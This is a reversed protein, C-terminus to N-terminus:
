LGFAKEIAAYCQDSRKFHLAQMGAARAAEINPLSDDMFFVESANFRYRDIVRAFLDPDPKILKEQASIVIGDFWDFYDRTRLYRYNVDGMNSLVYMPIGAAKVRQMIEISRPIDTLSERVVEFCRQVQESTLDTEAILRQGVSVETAVGRDIDLWDSHGLLQQRVTDTQRESFALSKLIGEPDWDVVVNGLDWLAIM